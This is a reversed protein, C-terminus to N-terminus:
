EETLCELSCVGHSKILEIHLADEENSENYEVGCTACTFIEDDDDDRCDYCRDGSWGIEGHFGELGCEPCSYFMELGGDDNLMMVQLESNSVFVFGSNRSFNISVESMDFERPIGDAMMCTIIDIVEALELNSFKGLDTTVIEDVRKM